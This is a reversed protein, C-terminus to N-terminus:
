KHPVPHIHITARVACAMTLYRQILNRLPLHKPELLM